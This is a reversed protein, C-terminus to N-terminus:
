FVFRIGLQGGIGFGTKQLLEIGPRAELFIELPARFRFNLGIPVILAASLTENNAKLSVAGGLGIYFVGWVSHGMRFHALGLEYEGYFGVRESFSRFGIGFDFGSGAATWIKLDLAAPDGVAIGLSVTSHRFGPDGDYPDANATGTALPIGILIFAACLIRYLM